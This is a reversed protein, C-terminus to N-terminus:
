GKSAIWLEVVVKALSVPLQAVFALWFAGYGRALVFRAKLPDSNALADVYELQLDSLIPYFVVGCVKKSFCLEALRRLRGGPAGTVAAPSLRAALDDFLTWALGTVGCLFIGTLGIGVLASAFGLSSITLILGDVLGWTGGLFILLLAVNFLIELRDPQHPRENM